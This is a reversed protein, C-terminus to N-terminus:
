FVVWLSERWNDAEIRAWFRLDIVSWMFVCESSKSFITVYGLM